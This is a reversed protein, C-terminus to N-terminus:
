HQVKLRENKHRCKCLHLKFKMIKSYVFFHKGKYIRTFGQLYKYM